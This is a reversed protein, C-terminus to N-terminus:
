LIGNESDRSGCSCPVALDWCTPAQADHSILNHRLATIVWSDKEIENTGAEDSFYKGCASCTYYESNGAETCTAAVAATKTLTHSAPLCANLKSALDLKDGPRILRIRPDEAAYEELVTKAEAASGDDCILFEFSEFSQELISSVSRQLLETREKGCLVGMIVSIRPNGEIQVSKAQKMSQM